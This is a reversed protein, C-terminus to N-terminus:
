LECEGPLSIRAKGCKAIIAGLFVISSRMMRMLDDPICYCDSNGASVLISNNERKTQSGLYNLINCAADVDTLLPCNHIECDGSVLTAALIPLASNKAGHIRLSGELRKQGQILFKEM